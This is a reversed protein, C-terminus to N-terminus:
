WWLWIIDSNWECKKVATVWKQLFQQEFMWGDLLPHCDQTCSPQELIWDWDRARAVRSKVSQAIWVSLDSSNENQTCVLLVYRLGYSWIYSSVLWALTGIWQLIRLEDLKYTCRDFLLSQYIAAINGSLKRFSSSSKHPLYGGRQVM